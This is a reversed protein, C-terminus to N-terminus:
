DASATAYGDACARTQRDASVGSYGDADLAANFNADGDSAL